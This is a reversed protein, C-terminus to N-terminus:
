EETEVTSNETTTKRCYLIGMLVILFTGLFSEFIARRENTQPFTKISGSKQPMRKLSIPGEFSKPEAGQSSAIKQPQESVLEEKVSKTSKGVTLPPNILPEEKGEIAPSKSAPEEVQYTVIVQGTEVPEAAFAKPTYILMLGIVLLGVMGILQKNM